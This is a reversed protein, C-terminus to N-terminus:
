TIYARLATLDTGNLTVSRGPEGLSDLLSAIVSPLNDLLDAVDVGIVTLTPMDPSSARLMDTTGFATVDITIESPTM